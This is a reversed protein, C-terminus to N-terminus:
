GSGPAASVPALAWDVAAVIPGIALSGFAHGLGAVVDLRRPERAAAYLERADTAPIFSDAAGHLVAFPARVRPALALPPPPDSWRRAVTVGLYRATVARGAPTRTLLAALM